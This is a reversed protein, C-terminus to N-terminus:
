KGETIDFSSSLKEGDQTSEAALAPAASPQPFATAVGSNQLAWAMAMGLAGNVPHLTVSGDVAVDQLSWSYVNGGADVGYASPGCNTWGAPEVPMGPLAANVSQAISKFPENVDFSVQIKTFM